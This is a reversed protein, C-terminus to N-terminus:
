VFKELTIFTSGRIKRIVSVDCVTQVAYMTMCAYCTRAYIVSM